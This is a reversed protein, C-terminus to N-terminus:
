ITSLVAGAMMLVAGFFKKITVPDKPSELYGFHSLIMAMVIQGTITLIFFSRAGIRPILFTTGLVMLAAFFGPLFLYFPLGRLKTITKWDAFFFFILITTLLAIIFFPISAAVTSDLHRAVSSNMPLYIAIMIGMLVAILFFLVTQM